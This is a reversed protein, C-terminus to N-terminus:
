VCAISTISPLSCITFITRVNRLLFRLLNGFKQMFWKEEYIIHVHNEISKSFSFNRRSLNVLCKKKEEKQAIFKKPTLNPYPISYLKCKLNETKKTLM